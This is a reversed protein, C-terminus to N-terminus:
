KFFNKIKNIIKKYWKTEEYEVIPNQEVIQNQEEKRKEFINEIDYRNQYKIDNDKLNRILKEKEEESDCWYKLNLVALIELTGKMLNQNKLPVKPDITIKYENDKNRKFEDIMKKPVRHVYKPEMYKLVELVEAYEKALLIKM